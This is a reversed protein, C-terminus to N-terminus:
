RRLKALLEITGIATLEQGPRSGLLRPAVRFMTRAAGKAQVHSQGAEGAFSRFLSKCSTGSDIADLLADEVFRHPELAKAASKVCTTIGGAFRRAPSQLKATFYGTILGTAAATLSDQWAIGVKFDIPRTGEAVLIGKPSVNCPGTPGRCNTHTLANVAADEPTAAVPSAAKMIPAAAGGRVTLMGSSTNVLELSLRDATVCALYLRAHGPPNERRYPIAPNCKEDFHIDALGDSKSGSDEGADDGCSPLALSGAALLVPLLVRKGV